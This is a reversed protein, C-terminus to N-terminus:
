GSACANAVRQLAASLESAVSPAAEGPSPSSGTLAELSTVGRDVIGCPTFLAYPALDTTLNLAIGHM